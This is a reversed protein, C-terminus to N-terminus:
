LIKFMRIIRNKIFTENIKSYVSEPSQVALSSLILGIQISKLLSYNHYIGYALGAVLADGGGTSDVIKKRKINVTKGEPFDKSFVMVGQVSNTLIINKVGKKILKQVATERDKITRTAMGTLSALENVNPTLCSIKSLIGLLKRSKAMSVPDVILPIKERSCLYAICHIAQTTLNTDIIVLRNKKIIGAKAILYRPTVRKMIILDSVAAQMEGKESLIAIYKGSPDKKSQIVEKTEVQANRLKEMIERGEDDDGVAGFFNVPINLLGLYHAINRGVGGHDIRITGPNSTRWKMVNKPKGKIDINAGGIVAIGKKEQANETIM